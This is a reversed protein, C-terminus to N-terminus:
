AKAAICEVEVRANRVLDTGGLVSRAPYRDAEFYKVYVSNFRGFESIDALFVTCKTVDQWGYGYAQLIRQINDMAQRSQGEVGGAALEGSGPVIGLQGSLYLTNGAQAAESIPFGNSGSNFFRVEAMASTAGSLALLGALLSIRITM